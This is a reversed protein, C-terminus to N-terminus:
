SFCHGCINLMTALFSLVTPTQVVSYYSLVHMKVGCLSAIVLSYLRFSLVFANRVPASLGLGCTVATVALHNTGESWHAAAVIRLSPWSVILYPSLCVCALMTVLMCAVEFVFFNM